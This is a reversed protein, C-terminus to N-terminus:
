NPKKIKTCFSWFITYANEADLYARVEPNERENLWFYPDQRTYGHISLEKPIQKAKPAEKDLNFRM